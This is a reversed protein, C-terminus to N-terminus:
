DPPLLGGDDKGRRTGPTILLNAIRGNTFDMKVRPWGRKFLKAHKKKDLAYVKFGLSAGFKNPVYFCVEPWEPRTWINVVDTGSTESLLEPIWVVARYGDGDDELPLYGNIRVIELEHAPKGYTANLSNPIDIEIRYEYSRGDQEFGSTIVAVAVTVRLEDPLESIYGRFTPAYDRPLYGVHTGNIRVAVANADHPNGDEPVLEAHCMVLAPVDPPNRAVKAIADRRYSTGAVRVTFEGSENWHIPAATM